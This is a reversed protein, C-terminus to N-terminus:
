MQKRFGLVSPTVLVTHTMVLWHSSLPSHLIFFAEATMPLLPVNFYPEMLKLSPVALNCVLAARDHVTCYFGDKSKTVPKQYQAGLLRPVEQTIPSDKKTWLSGWYVVSNISRSVPHTWLCSWSQSQWWSVKLGVWWHTIFSPFQPTGPNILETRYMSSTPYL